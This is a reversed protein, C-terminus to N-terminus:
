AIRRWYIVGYTPTDILHMPIRQTTPIVDPDAFYGTQGHSTSRKGSISKVLLTGNSSSSVAYRGTSATYTYYSDDASHRHRPINKSTINQVQKGPSFVGPEFKITKKVIDGNALIDNIFENTEGYNRLAALEPLKEWNGGWEKVPDFDVNETAYISGIPFVKDVDFGKIPNAELYEKVTNNILTKIGDGSLFACMNQVLEPISAKPAIKGCWKFTNSM